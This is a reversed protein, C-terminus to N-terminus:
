EVYSYRLVIEETATVPSHYKTFRIEISSVRYEDKT